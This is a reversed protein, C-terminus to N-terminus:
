QRVAELLQYLACYYIRRGEPFMMMIHHLQLSAIITYVINRDLQQYLKEITIRQLTLCCNIAEVIAISSSNINVLKLSTLNILNAAMQLLASTMDQVLTINILPM